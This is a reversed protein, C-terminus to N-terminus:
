RLYITFTKFSDAMWKDGIKILWLQSYPQVQQFHNTNRLQMKFEKNNKPMQINSQTFNLSPWEAENTPCQEFPLHHSMEQVGASCYCIHFLSFFVLNGKEFVMSKMYCVKKVSISSHIFGMHTTLINWNQCFTTRLGPLCQKWWLLTFLHPASRFTPWTIASCMVDCHLGQNCGRSLTNIDWKLYYDPWGKIMFIVWQNLLWLPIISNNCEWGPLPTIPNLSDTSHTPPGPLDTSHPLTCFFMACNVFRSHTLVETSM